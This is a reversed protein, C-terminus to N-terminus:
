TVVALEPQDGLAALSSLGGLSAGVLVPARGLHATIANVDGAFRDLDYRGDPSWGSEGHGRLDVAIAHWGAAGLERGTNRWSHRTQGGGHLLVVPSNDPDGFSDARLQVDGADIGVTNAATM